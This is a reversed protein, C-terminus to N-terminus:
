SGILTCATITAYPSIRLQWSEPASDRHARVLLTRTGRVSAVPANDYDSAFRRARIETPPSGPTSANPQVSISLGGHPLTLDLTSGRGQADFRVCGAHRSLRGALALEVHPVDPGASAARRARVLTLEGGRLLVLDASARQEEGQDRLQAVTLAGSSHLDAAARFYSAPTIQPSWHPDIVRHPPFTGRVLHLATLEAAESTSGEFLTAEGSSFASLGGILALGAVVVFVPVSRRDVRIGRLSEIVVLVLLVGGSYVYRSAGPNGLSARGLSVLAWYGLVTLLVAIFQPTWAGHRVLRVVLLVVILSLVVWGVTAGQGFMGGSAHAALQAGFTPVQGFEHRGAISTYFGAYWAGYLVIPLGWVWIRRLGRDRWTLEVALGIAFLVATESCLLSAVLLACGVADSRQDSDLWVLALVALAISTTFGFNIGWLIFEWGSGLFAVPAAVALALPGIRQRAFLYVATTVLLHGLTASLRYWHYHNLGVTHFLLEYVASPIIEMHQNYSDLIGSVGSRRDEIWTWEDYFFRNGHGEQILWILAVV